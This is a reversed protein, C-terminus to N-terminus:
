CAWRLSRGHWGARKRITDWSILPSGPPSPLRSPCFGATGQVRFAQAVFTILFFCFLVAVSLDHILEWVARWVQPRASGANLSQQVLQQLLPQDGIM